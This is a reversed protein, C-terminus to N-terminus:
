KKQGYKKLDELIFHSHWAIRVYHRYHMVCQMDDIETPTAKNGQMFAPIEEILEHYRKSTDANLRKDAEASLLKMADVSKRLIAAISTQNALHDLICDVTYQIINQLRTKFAIDSEEDVFVSATIPQRAMKIGYNNDPADRQEKHKGFILASVVKESGKRRTNKKIPM